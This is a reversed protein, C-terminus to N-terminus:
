FRRLFSAAAAVDEKVTESREREIAQFGRFEVGELAALYEPWPVDGEGVVVEGGGARADKAHAHVILPALAEVAGTPSEGRMVLNAPDLNVGVFPLGLSGLLRRLREPPEGGTEAALCVEEREATRALDRLAEKMVALAPASEDEPVSGFHTTVVSTGLSRALELCKATAPVVENNADPDKFGRGFDACLGSLALGKRDLLRRFERRAGAGLSDPHM